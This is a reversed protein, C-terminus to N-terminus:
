DNDTPIEAWLEKHNELPVVVLFKPARDLM